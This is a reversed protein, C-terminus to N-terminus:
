SLMRQVPAGCILIVGASARTATFNAFHILCPAATTHSWSAAKVRRGELVSEDDLGQIGAEHATKFDIGPERRRVARVINQNFDADAQFRVKM